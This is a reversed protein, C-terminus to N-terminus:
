AVNLLNFHFIETLVQCSQLGFAVLLKSRCICRALLGQLFERPFGFHHHFFLLSARSAIRATHAAASSVVGHIFEQPYGMLWEVFRPNIDWEDHLFKSGYAERTKAEYFVANSLVRTSRDTLTRYQVWYTKAPTPWKTLRYEENGQNLVIRCERGDASPPMVLRGTQEQTSAGTLYYWAHIVQQPVVSNGLASCRQIACSGKKRPILRTCPERTSLLQRPMRFISPIPVKYALCFWRRRKHSAGADSANCDGYVTRFGAKRFARELVELGRTEIFPSNELFVFKVSPLLTCVRLVQFVLSSRDGKLGRGTVNAASVDQCPFGATILDPRIGHKAMLPGTLDKVDEYIPAPDLLKARICRNLVKRCFPDIECYAVVRSIPRLAYAFGGIGTFMDLLALKKRQM